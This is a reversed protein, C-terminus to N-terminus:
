QMVRYKIFCIRRVRGRGLRGPGMLLLLIKYSLRGGRGGEALEEAEAEACVTLVHTSARVRKKEGHKADFVDRGVRPVIGWGYRTMVAAKSACYASFSPACKGALQSATTIIRGGDNRALMGPLVKRTCLFVGRLNIAMLRDWDEVTMDQVPAMGKAIGANNVLIDIRGFHNTVATVMADVDKEEAVDARVLMGRRGLAEVDRRVQEAGPKDQDGFYNIALDAQEKAFARAVAAGIGSSSGTVLAVKGALKGTGTGTRGRPRPAVPLSSARGHYDGLNAKM